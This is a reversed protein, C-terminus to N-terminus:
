KHYIHRRLARANPSIKSCVHCRHEGASEVHISKMHQKLGTMGKLWAGCVQCQKLEPEPRPTNSHMLELHKKLIIKTRMQKGCKDCIIISEPDHMSNIHNKLKRETLFRNLLLFNCTIIFGENRRRGSM